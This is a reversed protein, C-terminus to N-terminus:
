WPHLRWWQKLSWWPHLSQCKLQILSQEPDLVLESEPEPEPELLTLFTELELKMWPYIFTKMKKDYRVRWKHMMQKPQPSPMIFLLDHTLSHIDKMWPYIFTKMKKNYCVQWKHM